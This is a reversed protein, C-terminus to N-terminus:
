GHRLILVYALAACAALFSLLSTLSIVVRATPSLSEVLRGGHELPRFLLPTQKKSEYSPFLERPPSPEPQDSEDGADLAAREAQNIEIPQAEPIADVVAVTEAQRQRLEEFFTDLQSTLEQM